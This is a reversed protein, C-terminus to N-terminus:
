AEVGKCLNNLFHDAAKNAIDHIMEDSKILIESRSYEDIFAMAINAAWTRRYDEDEVLAKTLSQVAMATNIHSPMDAALYSAMNHCAIEVKETEFIGDEDWCVSVYGAGETIIGQKLFKQNEHTPLKEVWNLETM